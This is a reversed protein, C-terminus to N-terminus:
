SVKITSSTLRNEEVQTGKVVDIESDKLVNKRIQTVEKEVKQLEVKTKNEVESVREDIRKNEYNIYKKFIAYIIFIAVLTIIAGEGLRDWPISEILKGM